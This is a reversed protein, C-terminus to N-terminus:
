RRSGGLKKKPAPGTSTGPKKTIAKRGIGGMSVRKLPCTGKPTTSNKPPVKTQGPQTKPDTKQEPAPKKTNIPAKNTSGPTTPKKPKTPPARRRRRAPVKMGKFQEETPEENASWAVECAEFGVQAAFKKCGWTKVVTTGQTGTSCPSVKQVVKSLRTVTVLLKGPTLALDITAQGPKKERAWANLSMVEGCSAENKHTVDGMATTCLNLTSSVAPHVKGSDFSDLPSQKWGGGKVSSHLYIPTNPGGPRMATMMSPPQSVSPRRQDEPLQKNAKEAALHKAEMDNFAEIALQEMRAMNNNPPDPIQTQYGFVDYTRTTTSVSTSPQNDAAVPIKPNYKPNKHFVNEVAVRTGYVVRTVTVAALTSHLLSLSFLLQITWTQIRM